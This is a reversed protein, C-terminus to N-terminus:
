PILAAVESATPKDYTRGDKVRDSVIRMHFSDRPNITFRDKASRFQKVYPNTENLMKILLDIIEKKLGDSKKILKRRVGKATLFLM